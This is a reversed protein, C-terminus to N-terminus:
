GSLAHGARMLWKRTPGGCWDIREGAVGIVRPGLRLADEEVFSGVGLDGAHGAQRGWRERESKASWISYLRADQHGQDDGFPVWV